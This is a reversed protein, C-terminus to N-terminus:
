EEATKFFNPIAKMWVDRAEAVPVDVLTRGDQAIQINRGGTRGIVAAPVGDKAALDLLAAEDGPKVTVLIRSQSEAFLAADPRLGSRVKM